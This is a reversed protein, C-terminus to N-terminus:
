HPDKRVNEFVLRDGDTLSFNLALTRLAAIADNGALEKRLLEKGALETRLEIFRRYASRMAAADDEAVIDYLRPEPRDPCYVRMQYKKMGAGCGHKAALM